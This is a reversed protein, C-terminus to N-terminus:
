YNNKTFSGVYTIFNEAIVHSWYYGKGTCDVTLLINGNVKCVVKFEGTDLCEWLEAERIGDTSRLKNIYERNMKTKSSM